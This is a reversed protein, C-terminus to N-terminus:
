SETKDSNLVIQSGDPLVFALKAGCVDAVKALEDLSWHDRRMKNNMAQPTSLGFDRALDIQKKESLELLAKVQRSATM